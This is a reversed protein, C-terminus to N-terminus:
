LIVVVVAVVFTLLAPVACLVAGLLPTREVEGTRGAPFALGVTVWGLGFAAVPLLLGALLAIMANRGSGALVYLAIQGALAALAVPAYGLLNRRGLRSIRVPRRPGKGTLAAESSELTSRAQRLEELVDSPGGALQQVAATADGNGPLLDAPPAGVNRLRAHSDALEARVLTLEERAAQVAKAHRAAEAVATRRVADLQQAAAQYAQWASRVDGADRARGPLSGWGSAGSM